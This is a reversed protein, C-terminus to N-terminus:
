DFLGFVSSGSGSMAAYFAGNQYMRDIHEQIIPFRKIAGAQFDNTIVNKWEEKALSPIDLLNITSPKPTVTSYAEVTSIKVDPSSIEIRYPFSWDMPMLEHGRGKLFCPKNHIFFADDSGL